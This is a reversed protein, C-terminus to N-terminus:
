WPGTLPDVPPQAAPPRVRPRRACGPDGTPGAAGVLWLTLPRAPHTRLHSAPPQPLVRLLPPSQRCSIVRLCRLVIPRPCSAASPPVAAVSAPLLDLLVPHGPSSTPYTRIRSTSLFSSSPSVATPPPPEDFGFDEGYGCSLISQRPLSQQSAATLFDGLELAGEKDHLFLSLLLITWLMAM